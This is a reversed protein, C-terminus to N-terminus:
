SVWASNVTDYVWENVGDIEARLSEPYYDLAAKEAPLQDNFESNLMRIIESSENNVITSTKKDWLVPVTFRGDYDPQVKFYLDKIHQANNVPDPTAAPFPDVDGLPWGNSGMRPSVITVGSIINLLCIL